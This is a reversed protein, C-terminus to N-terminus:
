KQRRPVFRIEREEDGRRVRLVVPEEPRVNNFLPPSRGDRGNVSVIVDGSRVGAESAPSDPTVDKVVPYNEFQATGDPKVIPGETWGYSFEIV